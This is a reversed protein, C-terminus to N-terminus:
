EVSKLSEVMKVRNNRLGVFSNIVASVGLAILLSLFVSAPGLYYFFECMPVQNIGLTLRTLPWGLTLGILVGVGSLTIIEFFLSEAVERRNFGLVKMTAINRTNEKFNLLALNYIAVIALLVAFVKITITIYSISSSISSIENTLIQKDLVRSVGHVRGIEDIIKEKKIKDTNKFRAYACTPYKKVMPFNPYLGDIFIGHIYFNDIVKGILGTYTEGLFAFNLYDGEHVNLQKAVKNSIAIKNDKVNYGINFFKYQADLASPISYVYTSYSDNIVGTRSANVPLYGYPEFADIVPVPTKSDDEITLDQLRTFTEENQNNFYILSDTNFFANIDHNIGYKVSDDIGFGCCLLGTCGLVGVVVMVSRPISCFINRLAMKFCLKHTNDKKSDDLNKHKITAVKPRMSVIPLSKVEKRAVLYSVLMTILLVILTMVVAVVTPFIFQAPILNYLMTYKINLIIPILLPGVVLGIAVGILSIIGSLAMYYSFISRNSAGIAKLTGIEKREKLIIQSITTLVILVAVLFFIPPFVYCLQLSQMMETNLQQHSTSDELSVNFLLNNKGAPKSKFNDEIKNRYINADNRNNLRTLYRNNCWYHEVIEEKSNTLIDYCEQLTKKYDGEPQKDLEEELGDIDYNAKLTKELRPALFNRTTLFTHPHTSHGEINEASNFRGTPIVEIKLYDNDLLNTNDGENPPIAFKQFVKNLKGENDEIRKKLSAIDLEIDIPLYNGDDDVWLSRDGFSAPFNLYVDTFLFYNDKPMEDFVESPKNITPNTDSLSVYADIGRVRASSYYQTEVKGNDNIADKILQYDQKTEKSPDFSKDNYDYTLTSTIDAINSAEYYRNIQDKFVLHSAYLGSFLTSALGLILIMTLFQLPSRIITRRMKKVSLHFYSPGKAM